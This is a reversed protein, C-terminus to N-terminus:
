IDCAPCTPALCPKLERLHYRPKLGLKKMARTFRQRQEETLLLQSPDIMQQTAGHDEPDIFLGAHGSTSSVDSVIVEVSSSALTLYAATFYTHDNWTHRNPLFGHMAPSLIEHLIIGELGFQLRLANNLRLFVGPQDNPPCRPCTCTRDLWRLSADDHLSWGYEEQHLEWDSEITEQVIKVKKEESCSDPNVDKYFWIANKEIIEKQWIKEIRDDYTTYHEEPPCIGQFCIFDQKWAPRIQTRMARRVHDIVHDLIEQPLQSLTCNRFRHCLRLTTVQPLTDTFAQLTAGLKGIDVPIVWALRPAGRPIPYEPGDSDCPVYNPFCM